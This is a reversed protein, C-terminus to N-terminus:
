NSFSVKEIETLNRTGSVSKSPLRLWTDMTIQRFIDTAENAANENNEYSLLGILESAETIQRKMLDHDRTLNLDNAIVKSLSSLVENLPDFMPSYNNPECNKVAAQCRKAGNLIINKAHAEPSLQSAPKAAVALTPGAASLPVSPADQLAGIPITDIEARVAKAQALLDGQGIQVLAIVHKMLSMAGSSVFQDNDLVTGSHVTTKAQEVNVKASTHFEGSVFELKQELATTAEDTTLLEANTLALVSHEKLTDPVTFWLRREQPSWQNTADSCWVIVETNDLLNVLYGARNDDGDYAPLITFDIDALIPYPLQIRIASPKKGALAVSLSIGPYSKLTDGFIAETKAEKGFRVEIVPCSKAEDASAFLREGIFLEGVARHQSASLGAIAVKAPTGLRHITETLRSVLDADLNNLEDGMMGCFSKLRKRLKQKETLKM